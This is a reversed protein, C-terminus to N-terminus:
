FASKIFYLKETLTIIQKYSFKDCTQCNNHACCSFTAWIIKMIQILVFKILNQIISKYLDQTYIIM